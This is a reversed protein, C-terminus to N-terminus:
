LSDVIIVEIDLEIFQKIITKDTKRDTIITDFDGPRAFCFHSGLGIKTHDAIIVKRGMSKHLMTKNIIGEQYIDTTAGSIPHLATCGVFSHTSYLNEMSLLTLNGALSSHKADYQGSLMMVTVKPDLFSTIVNTNNTMFIVEKQCMQPILSATSGSSIYVSDGDSLFELSRSAIKEKLEKNKNLKEVFYKESKKHVPKPQNVENIQVGGWLKTVLSLEALKNIIRRVTAPSLNTQENLEITKCSHAKKILALIEKEHKNLIM